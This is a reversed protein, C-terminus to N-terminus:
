FNIYCFSICNYVCLFSCSLYYSTIPFSLFCFSTLYNLARLIVSNRELPSNLFTLSIYAFSDPKQKPIESFSLNSIAFAFPHKFFTSYLNHLSSSYRCFLFLFPSPNNYRNRLLDNHQSPLYNCKTISKREACEIEIQLGIM